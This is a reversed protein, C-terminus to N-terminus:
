KKVLIKNESLDMSCLKGQFVTRIGMIDVFTLKDDNVLVNSVNRCLLKEEAGHQEYVASLCM